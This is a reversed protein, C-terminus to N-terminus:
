RERRKWERGAGQTALLEESPRGCNYCITSSAKQSTTRRPTDPTEGRKGDTKGMEQDKGKKGKGGRDDKGGHPGRHADGVQNLKGSDFVMRTRVEYNMLADKIDNYSEGRAHLQCYERVPAPVNKLLLMIKDTDSIELERTVIIPNPMSQLMVHFEFVEAEVERIIERISQQGKVVLNIVRNRYFQAESRSQLCFDGSIVRLAEYGNRDGLPSQTEVLRIISEVRSCGTFCQRLLYM